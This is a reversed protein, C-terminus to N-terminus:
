RRRNTKRRNTKRRKKRLKNRRTRRKGGRSADRRYKTTGRLFENVNDDVIQINLAFREKTQTNMLYYEKTVLNIYFVKYYQPNVSPYQIIDDVKFTPNTTAIHPTHSTVSDNEVNLILEAKPDVYTICMDIFEDPKNHKGHKKLIYRPTYDQTIVNQVSYYQKDLEITDDKKFRPTDSM